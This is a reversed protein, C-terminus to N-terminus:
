KKGSLSKVYNVLDWRSKEPISAWSVMATGPVGASITKFIQADTGGYKFQGSGLNAPKPTLAVAAPGDGKGEPGHCAACNQQFLAKGAAVSQPTMKQPNQQAAATLASGGVLVMALALATGKSM